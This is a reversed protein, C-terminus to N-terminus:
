LSPTSAESVVRRERRSCLMASVPETRGSIFEGAPSVGRDTLKLVSEVRGWGRMSEKMGAEFSKKEAFGERRLRRKEEEPSVGHIGGSKKGISRLMDTQVKQNQKRKEESKLKETGHPLNLQNIDAKSRANFCCRTDHRITDYSSTATSSDTSRPRVARM